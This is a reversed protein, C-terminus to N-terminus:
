YSEAIVSNEVDIKRLSCAQNEYSRATNPDQRLEPLSLLCYKCYVILAENAMAIDKMKKTTEELVVQNKKHEYKDPHYQAALKYYANKIESITVEEGLELIKRANDILDFNGVSLKIDVFSYPAMPGIYKFKLEDKYKEQLESLKAALESESSKEVLFSYNLLMKRSTVSTIEDEASDFLKGAAFNPFYNALFSLVSEIYEKRRLELAEFILKGLKIKVTLGLIRGRSSAKKRLKHIEINERAIKEIINKEDWFAEVIFENKAAVKALSTKFQFYAKKLVNLVEEKSEVIMGFRMPVVDYDKILRNNVQEHVSIFEALEKKDLQDFNILYTGSIAATLDGCFVFIVGRNNLGLTSRKLEELKVLNSPTSIIAYVYINEKIM